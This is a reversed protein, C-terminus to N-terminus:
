HVKFALRLDAALRAKVIVLISISVLIRVLGKSVSTM